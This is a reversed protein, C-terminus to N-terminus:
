LDVGCGVSEPTKETTLHSDPRRSGSAWFGESKPNLKRAIVSGPQGQRKVM